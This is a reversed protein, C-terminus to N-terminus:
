RGTQSVAKECPRLTFAGGLSRLIAVTEGKLGCGRSVQARHRCSLVRSLRACSSSNIRVACFL